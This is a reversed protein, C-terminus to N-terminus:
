PFRRPASGDPVLGGFRSRNRAVLDYAHELMSDPVAQLLRASRERGLARLVAPGGSGRGAVSGDTRVLRWSTMRESEPVQELLPDAEEAQLPLFALREDRDLRQVLRATFRCVRCGSDYLLVPRRLSTV